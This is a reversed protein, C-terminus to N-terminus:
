SSRNRLQHKVPAMEFNIRHVSGAVPETGRPENVATSPAARDIGDSRYRVPEFTSIAERGTKLLPKCGVITTVPAIISVVCVSFAYVCLATQGGQLLSM